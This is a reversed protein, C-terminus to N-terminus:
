DEITFSRGFVDRWKEVTEGKGGLWSATSLAEWASVAAAVIEQREKETVRATVNNEANVPDLLVVPDAPFSRVTGNEPFTVPERLESQAVYLFFRLLGEELGTAAGERDQLAALILEIAFSRLHNLEHQNRWRKLLRVLTRYRFDASKRRDIFALQGSVSTKVPSGGSSSPQWGYGPEGPIPILPVLDIDLGSERFHIGLTRPQVKFDDPDKQPYVAILLDCIISHLLQLDDKSAESIDLDVAIDADVGHGDRPKLVTGKRLSGTKTFKKIAFSSGNDIKREFREILYDVQRLYEKRRGPPLKLVKNVFVNIETDTLLM